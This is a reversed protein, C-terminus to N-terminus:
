NQPLLFGIKAQKRINWLLDIANRMEQPNAGESFAALRM